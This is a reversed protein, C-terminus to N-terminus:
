NNGLRIISHGMDKRTFYLNNQKTETIDSPIKVKNILKKFFPCLNKSTILTTKTTQNQPEDQSAKKIIASRM